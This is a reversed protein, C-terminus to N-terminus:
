LYTPEMSKRFFLLLLLSIAIYIGSIIAISEITQGADILLGYTAAGTATAFVM